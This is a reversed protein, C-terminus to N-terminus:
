AITLNKHGQVYVGGCRLVARLRLLETRDLYNFTTRSFNKFDHKFLDWLNDDVIEHVTAQFLKTNLYESLDDKTSTATNIGSRWKIRAKWQEARLISNDM